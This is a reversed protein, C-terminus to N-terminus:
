FCLDDSYRSTFSLITGGGFDADDLKFFVSIVNFLVPGSLYEEVAFIITRSRNRCSGIATIASM